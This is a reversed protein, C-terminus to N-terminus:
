HLREWKDDRGTGDDWQYHLMWCTGCRVCQYVQWGERHYPGDVLVLNHPHAIVVKKSCRCSVATGGHESSTSRLVLQEGGVMDNLGHLSAALTARSYGM